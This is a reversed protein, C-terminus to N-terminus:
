PRFEVAGIDSAVIGDGNGDVRFHGLQDTLDCDRHVRGGADIAPSGPQLPVFAHGPDSEVVLPSVLPDINVLDVGSRNLTCDVAIGLLNHGGTTLPGSCDPGLSPFATTSAISNAAFLSTEASLAGRNWIGGGIHL